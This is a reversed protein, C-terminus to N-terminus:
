KCPAVPLLRKREGPSASKLEAVLVSAGQGIVKDELTAASAHSNGKERAQAATLVGGESEGQGLTESDFPIIASGGLVNWKAPVRPDGETCREEEWIIALVYSHGMELRPSGEAAMKTRKGTDGDKFSWGWAPLDISEPTPRSAKPSSWLTKDVRLRLERLVIGEGRDRYEASVSQDKEAVPTVAVVHDAYTVWDSANRNPYADKGSALLVGSGGVSDNRVAFIVAVGAAVALVACLVAFTVRRKM